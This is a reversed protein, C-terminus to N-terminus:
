GTPVELGESTAAQALETDLTALVSFRRKALELYLADYFSLRHARALRLAEQLDAQQDTRLPLEDLSDLREETESVTARGRREAVLLANRIEYHWHQPVIGEDQRLLALVHHSRADFEDHLVWSVAISADLVLPSM